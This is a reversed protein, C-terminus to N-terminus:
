KGWKHKYYDLYDNLIIQAALSDKYKKSKTTNLGGQKLIEKARKTSYQENVLMVPIEFNKELLIKFKEVMLTRDSKDGSIKLPYGLVFGDIKYISLYYKIREIVLNFNNEEFMFNEISSSIIESEDTIAFGCSKTGLDLGLKRM